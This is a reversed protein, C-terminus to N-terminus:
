NSQKPVIHTGSPQGQAQSKERFFALHQKECIYIVLMKELRM